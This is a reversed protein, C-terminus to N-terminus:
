TLRRGATTIIRVATWSPITWSRARRAMTMAHGFEHCITGLGDMTGSGNLESGCAYRDVRKGDLTLYIGGATLYWQHPWITNESGGDAEGKGAYVMYVLDVDNDADLDYESFDVTADLAECAEKVAQEPYKDNGQADNSGYYSMKQSLKVPGLVDFIPEFVGHSNEYYYDRASGTAGNASYGPENLMDSFAQRPSAIKFSLDAFEVLVVLFHKQGIAIPAKPRAASAVQRMAKRRITAAQAAMEVTAGEVVRYFGNEDMRVVQGAQNTTWHGWEDGHRQILITSGDPQTYRFFGPKAPKALLSLSCALLILISAIKKM